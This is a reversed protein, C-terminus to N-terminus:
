FDDWEDPGENEFNFEDDEDPVEFTFEEDDDDPVEFVFEEEINDLAEFFSLDEGLPKLETFGFVQLVHNYFENCEDEDDFRVEGLCSMSSLTPTQLRMIYSSDLTSIFRRLLVMERNLRGKSRMVEMFMTERSRLSLSFMDWITQFEHEDTRKYRGNCFVTCDHTDRPETYVRMSREYESEEEPGFDFEFKQKKKKM